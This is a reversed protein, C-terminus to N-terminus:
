CICRHLYASSCCFCSCGTSSIPIDGQGTSMTSHLHTRGCSAPPHWVIIYGPAVSPKSSNFNCLWNSATPELQLQCELKLRLQLYSARLSFGAGSLPSQGETVGPQVAWSSHSLVAAITLPVKPWHTATQERSWSVEWVCGVDVRECGKRSSYTLPINKYLLTNTRENFDDIHKQKCRYTYSYVVGDISANKSEIWWFRWWCCINDDSIKLWSDKWVM